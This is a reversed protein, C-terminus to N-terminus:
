IPPNCELPFHNSYLRLLLISFTHTLVCLRIEWEFTIVSRYSMRALSVNSDAASVAEHDGHQSTNKCVFLYIIQFRLYSTRSFIKTFLSLSLYLGTKM